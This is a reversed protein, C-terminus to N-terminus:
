LNHTKVYKYAAEKLQYIPYSHKDYGRIGILELKLLKEFFSDWEIKERGNKIEYQNTAGLGYVCGGGEFHVQFFDPDDVSTWLKLREKDYDSLEEQSTDEKIEKWEIANIVIKDKIFNDNICLSLKDELIREFDNASNDDVYLAKQGIARKFDRLRSIQEVDIDNVNLAQKFFIMVPKGAKLHEEIEEVSGSAYDETPTGLKAGFVCILLDSRNVVQKNIAKQPYIGTIPYASISWHLPLLVTKQKEANINNWHHIANIAINVEEKIDSPAGIMIKYVDAQFM